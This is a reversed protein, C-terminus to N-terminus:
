PLRSWVATDWPRQAVRPSQWDAPWSAAISSGKPALRAAEAAARPALVLKVPWIAVVPGHARVHARSPRRGEDTRPEARDVLYSSWECASFDVAPLCAGLEARARELFAKPEVEPGREALEGGVHWVTRDGQTDSTITVRTRAGDICHGFVMPLPGRVMAQRLPRRQMPESSGLGAM